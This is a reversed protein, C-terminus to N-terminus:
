SLLEEYSRLMERLSFKAIVQQHARTPMQRQLEEDGLLEVIAKALAGPNGPPVLLGSQHDELMEPVAGVQTAVVPVKAAMAELLAWSFGEKASSLVFVDFSPLLEKAHPIRGALWLRDALGAGIIQREVTARLPGDGIVVFRVSGGVQKAADILNAIDKAPYFNAITGVLFEDDRLNFREPLYERLRARAEARSPLPLFPDIGNPICILKNRPRIGLERAQALDHESNVVITDKWNASIRELAIYLQRQWTPRPDNFAWGGIRYVVPVGLPRAARAGVFGAKSSMLLVVDPKWRRMMARLEGIARMDELPSPNRVLHQSVEWTAHTPLARVLARGSDHGWVVHLSFRESDLGHTLQTLFEQAGGVEGQTIVCFVRRHSDNIFRQNEPM